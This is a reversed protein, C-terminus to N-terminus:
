YSGSHTQGGTTVPPGCLGRHAPPLNPETHLGNHERSTSKDDERVAWQGTRTRACISLPQAPTAPPLTSFHLAHVACLIDALASTITDLCTTPLLLGPLALQHRALWLVARHDLVSMSLSARLCTHSAHTATAQTYRWAPINPVRPGDNEKMM